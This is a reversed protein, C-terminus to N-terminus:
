STIGHYIAKGLYYAKLLYSKFYDIKVNGGEILPWEGHGVVVRVPKGDERTCDIIRVGTTPDDSQDSWNGIEIECWGEAEHFFCQTFAIDNSGGKVTVGNKHPLFDCDHFQLKKCRNNVDLCDELGGHITCGAVIADYYNSFKLIDDYSENEPQITQNGLRLGSGNAYSKYNKDNSM